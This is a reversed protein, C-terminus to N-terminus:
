GFQVSRRTFAGGGIATWFGEIPFKVKARDAQAAGAAILLPVFHEQTPLAIRAGPGKALYDMLGDVDQRVLAEAVWQDFESAWSPTQKGWARMNHTIFGSGVILVGEDRLPALTQGLAFLEKPDETPMSVQLVPVDAVPYMAMLPIFAGHDLGRTPDEAVKQGAGTVLAKVRAALEPAGPSPYQVRYFHEPFGYYDYVLPITTTAGITLPREEWHASIMLVSKPKPMAKAWASLEGMWQDDELLPPAGHALFSVPLRNTSSQPNPTSVASSRPKPSQSTCGLSALSPVAAGVAMMKLLDRRKM